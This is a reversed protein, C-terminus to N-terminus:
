TNIYKPSPHTILKATSNPLGRPPPSMQASVELIPLLWDQPFCPSPHDLYLSCCTSLRGTLSPPLHPSRMLPSSPFWVFKAKEGPVTWRDTIHLVSQPIPTCPLLSVQPSVGGSLGTSKHPTLKHSKAPTLLSPNTLRFILPPAKLCGPSLNAEPCEGHPFLSSSLTLHTLGDGPHCPAAQAPAAPQQYRDRAPDRHGVLQGHHCWEQCQGPLCGCVM